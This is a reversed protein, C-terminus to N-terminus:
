VRAELKELRRDIRDHKPQHMVQEQRFDRLEGYVADLKVIVQDFKDDFKQGLAGIKGNLEHQTVVLAVKVKSLDDKTAFRKLDQKTAFVGKLKKIDDNTIM